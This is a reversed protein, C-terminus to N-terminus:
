RIIRYVSYGDIRPEGDGTAPVTHSLDGWYYTINGITVPTGVAILGSWVSVSGSSNWKLYAYGSSWEFGYQGSVGGYKYYTGTAPERVELVQTWVTTGNFIVKTINTGNFSLSKAINTPITTGNIILAM